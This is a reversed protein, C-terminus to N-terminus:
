RVSDFIDSKLRDSDHFVSDFRCDADVLQAAGCMEVTVRLLM